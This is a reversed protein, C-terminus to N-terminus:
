PHEKGEPPAVTPKGAKREVEEMPLDPAWVMWFYRGITAALYVHEVAEIETDASCSYKERPGLKIDAAYRKPGDGICSITIYRKAHEYLDIDADAILHEMTPVGDHGRRHWARLVWAKRVEEPMEPENLWDM